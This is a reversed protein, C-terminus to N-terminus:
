RLSSVCIASRSDGAWFSYRSSVKSFHCPPCSCTSSTSTIPTLTYHPTLLQHNCQKLSKTGCEFECECQRGYQELPSQSFGATLLKVSNRSTGSCPMGFKLASNM